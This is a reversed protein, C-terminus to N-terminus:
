SIEGLWFRSGTDIIGQNTTFRHAATIVLLKKGAVDVMDGARIQQALQSDVVKRTILVHSLNQLTRADKGPIFRASRSKSFDGQIINGDPDVSICMPIEHQETLDSDHAASSDFQGLSDMPTQSMLNHLREVSLRGERLVMAAGEEQLAVAVAISPVDGAVCAFRAVTFDNLIVVSAGCSRYLSGLSANHGTVARGRPEAIAKCKSLFATFRMAQMADSGQVVGNPQARERKVITYELHEHGGWISAGASLRSELDDKLRVTFEITRPVPALDSRLICEQVVDGPLQEGSASLYLNM